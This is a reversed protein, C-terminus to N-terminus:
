CGIMEALSFTDYKKLFVAILLTGPGQLNDIDAMVLNGERKEGRFSTVLRTSPDV